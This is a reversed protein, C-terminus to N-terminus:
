ICLLYVTVLRSLYADMHYCPLSDDLQFVYSHFFYRILWHYAYSLILMHHPLRLMLQFSHPILLFLLSHTMTLPLHLDSLIGDSYLYSITAILM